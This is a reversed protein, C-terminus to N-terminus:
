VLDERYLAHIIDALQDRATELMRVFEEPNEADRYENAIYVALGDGMLGCEEASKMSGDSEIASGPCALNPGYANDVANLVRANNM